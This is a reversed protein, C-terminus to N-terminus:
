HDELPKGCKECFGHKTYISKENKYIQTIRHFPITEEELIVKWDMYSVKKYHEFDRYVIYYDQPNENTDHKIRNFIEELKGKLIIM